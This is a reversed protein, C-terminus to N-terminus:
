EGYIGQDNSKKRDLIPADGEFLHELKEHRLIKGNEDVELLEERILRSESDYMCENRFRLQGGKYSEILIMNGAEDYFHEDVSPIPNSHSEIRKGTEVDQENYTTVESELIVGSPGKKIRIVPSGYVNYGITTYEEFKRDIFIKEENLLGGQVFTKEIRLSECGRADKEIELILNDDDDYVFIEEGILEGYNDRVIAKDAKGLDSFSYERIESLGDNYTTVAKFIEGYSDELFEKREMLGNLFDYEVQESLNGSLESYRFTLKHEVLGSSRYRTQDLIRGYVDYTIEESIFKESEQRDIDYKTTWTIRRHM